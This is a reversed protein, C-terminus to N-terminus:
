VYDGHESQGVGGIGDGHEQRAQQISYWLQRLRLRTYELVM